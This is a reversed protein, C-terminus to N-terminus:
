ATLTLKVIEPPSGVRMPPGWFGCGRSVYLHADGRRYLGRTYEWALNILLTGPFVQGGHTHGSLQIDVGRRAVVDFNAPQHALLVAAREPDRGALARDLDYGPRGRRRGGSWDDVGVLDVVGGADGIEVRRNRLVQVGVSELFATWAVEGSYYEHNGTVFYRGFRAKLDGLAAVAHGLTPVDGDVLDGTIAVVDPKLANVREVLEDMFRREIFHGVHVDTLQVITLGDLTRPLRPVALALETVEPPSFARWAGYTATSLGAVSTGVALFRRRDEDVPGAAPQPGDAAPQPGDAAVPRRPRLRAGAAWLARAADAVMCVAVCCMLLGLWTYSVRSLLGATEWSVGDRFTRRAFLLGTMAAMVAVAAWRLSRRRVAPRVLRVYLYVHALLTGLGILTSFSLLRFSM